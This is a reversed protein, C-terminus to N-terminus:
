EIALLKDEDVAEALTNDDAGAIMTCEECEAEGTFEALEIRIDRSGLKSLHRQGYKLDGGFDEFVAGVIKAGGIRDCQIDKAARWRFVFLVIAYLLM